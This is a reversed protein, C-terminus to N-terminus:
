GLWNLGSLRISAVCRLLGRRFRQSFGYSDFIYSCAIVGCAGSGFILLFERRFM